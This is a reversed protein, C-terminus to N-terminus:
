LYKKVLETLKERENLSPDEMVRELLTNLMEGIKPGRLGLALLDNGTLLLDSIKTPATNERVWELAEVPSNELLVSAYCANEAENGYAAILKRADALSSIKRRAGEAVAVAGAIQHNSYKLMKLLNKTQEAECESFFLGLRATDTVPMKRIKDLLTKTPIYNETVFSLIETQIMRELSPMPDSSLLLRLFEASIREKAVKTLGSKSQICGELTKEEIEFGLQASFRFARLIRLADERFRLSPDGVARLIKRELDKRGGFPDVLGVKPHYAMANVTFDRRSLDEEIRRTFTVQDPHRSDSYTGDVRFTTIEVPENEVLVTLTGHQIGTAIVRKESFIKQTKEPLASTALDYDNPSLGLLRDRLSGGVLYVEEGAEELREFLCLIWEPLLINKGTKQEMM